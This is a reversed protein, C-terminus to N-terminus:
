RTEKEPLGDLTKLGKEAIEGEDCFAEFGEVVTLVGQQQWFIKGHVKEVVVEYPSGVMLHAMGRDVEPHFRPKPLCVVCRWENTREEAFVVM